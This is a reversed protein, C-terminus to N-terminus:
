HLDHGNSEEHIKGDRMTLRRGAYAAVTHDHTVILLTRGQASLGELLHMIEQGTASDLNGTPEDALIIAPNTILARAIAVRQREGGSLLVPFQQARDALGVQGLVQYARKRLDERSKRYMLPLAVNEWASLRPLLNFNQFVIGIRENRIRALRDTSSHDVLRGELWYQGANLYDLGGLVNLLTSKGSGSAGMLALFEGSQVTLDVGDLARIVTTGMAFQRRADRVVIVAGDEPPKLPEAASM